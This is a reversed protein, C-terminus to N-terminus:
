RRTAVISLVTPMATRAFAGARGGRAGHGVIAVVVVVLVVVVVIGPGTHPFPMRSPVSCHSVTAVDMQMELPRLPQRGGPPLPAQM